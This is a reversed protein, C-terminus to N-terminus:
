AYKREQDHLAPLPTVEILHKATRGNAAVINTTTKWLISHNSRNLVVDAKVALSMLVQPMDKALRLLKDMAEAQAVDNSEYKSFAVPGGGFMEAAEKQSIGWQERLERVQDGCLLGDAEKKVAIHARKNKRSIATGAQETGCSNCENFYLPSTIEKDKYLTTEYEVQEHLTGEECLPCQNINKM